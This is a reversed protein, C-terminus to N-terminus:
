KALRADRSRPFSVPTVIRDNGRPSRCSEGFDRESTLLIRCISLPPPSSLPSRGPCSPPISHSRNVFFFFSLFFPPFSTVGPLSSERACSLSTAGHSRPNIIGLIYEVRRIEARIPSLSLCLSLSVTARERREYIIWRPREAAAGSLVAVDRRHNLLRLASVSPAPCNARPRTSTIEVDRALRARKKVLPTVENRARQKLYFRIQSSARKTRDCISAPHLINKRAEPNAFRPPLEQSM